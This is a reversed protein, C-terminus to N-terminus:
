SLKGFFGGLLGGGLMSILGVKLGLFWGVPSTAVLGIGTGIVVRKGNLSGIALLSRNGAEIDIGSEDIHRQIAELDEAQIFVLDDLDRFMQNIDLLDQHIQEIERSMNEEFDEFKLEEIQM